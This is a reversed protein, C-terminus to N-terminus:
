PLSGQLYVEAGYANLEWKLTRLTWQEGARIRTCSSSSAEVFAEKIDRRRGDGAFTGDGRCRVCM